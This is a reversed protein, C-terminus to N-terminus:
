ALIPRKVQTMQVLVYDLLQCAFLDLDVCGVLAYHEHELDKNQLRKGARQDRSEVISGDSTGIIIGIKGTFRRQKRSLLNHSTSGNGVGLDPIQHPTQEHFSELKLYIDFTVCDITRIAYYHCTLCTMLCVFAGQWKHLNCSLFVPEM